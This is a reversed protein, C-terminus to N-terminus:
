PLARARFQILGDVLEPQRTSVLDVAVFAEVTQLDGQLDEMVASFLLGHERGSDLLVTHRLRHVPRESEPSLKDDAVSMVRVLSRGSSTFLSSSRGETPEVQEVEREAERRTRSSSTRTRQRSVDRIRSEYVRFTRLPRQSSFVVELTVRARDGEPTIDVIRAALDLDIGPECSAAPAAAGNAELGWMSVGVLIVASVFAARLKM